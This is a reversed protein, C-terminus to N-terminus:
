MGIEFPGRHDASRSPDIHDSHDVEAIIRAPRAATIERPRPLDPFTLPSVEARFLSSLDLSRSSSSFSSSSHRRSALFVFFFSNRTCLSLSVHSFRSVSVVFPRFCDLSFWPAFCVAVCNPSYCCCLLLSLLWSLLLLFCYMGTSTSCSSLLLPSRPLYVTCPQVSANEGTDFYLM